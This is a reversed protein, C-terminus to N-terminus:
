NTVVKMKSNKKQVLVSSYVRQFIYATMCVTYLYVDFWGDFDKSSECKM